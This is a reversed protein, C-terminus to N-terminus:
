VCQLRILISQYVRIILVTVIKSQYSDCNTLTTTVISICNYASSGQPQSFLPVSNFLYCKYHPETNHVFLDSMFSCLLKIFLLYM